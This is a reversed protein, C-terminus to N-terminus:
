RRQVIGDVAVGLHDMQLPDLVGYTTESTDDGLTLATGKRHPLCGFGDAALTIERTVM